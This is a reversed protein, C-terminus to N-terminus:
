VPMRFSDGTQSLWNRMMGRHEDRLGSASAALNHTEGPDLELDFLQEPRAGNNFVVYKYRRGRLMRGERDETGYRLEAVVFPRTSPKLLSIGRMDPPTQMGAADCMTPVVDALTALETRVEARAIGPGAVILPVRVSEEYFSAKQVWRHAGMGEGHDSAFIVLTNATHGGEDLAKLVRGIERDVAEVMRYYDHVYQRFDDRQWESAIGVAQSMLDYAARRHFQIAEPENPDLAMNAAAPPYKRLDPHKRHGKHDRIWQCVDHPNMFSAVMLFPDGSSPRQRLWGACTTALPADMDSGQSSGGILKRFSTMGDFSKPLHWKGGYVTEYGAKEFVEGMTDMGAVVPRGNVMVGTEHPMRGTFISSRSPSCVPYPCIASAFTTGRAALSDMAPTRLWPNSAGSWADHTQQDTLILLINPRRPTQAFAAAASTALFHRREV